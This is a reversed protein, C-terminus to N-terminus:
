HLHHIFNFILQWHCWNELARHQQWHSWPFFLHERLPYVVFLDLPFPLTFFTSDSLSSMLGAGEALGSPVIITVLFCLSECASARSAEVEWSGGIAVGWLFIEVGEIWWNNISLAGGGGLEASGLLTRSSAGNWKLDSCGSCQIVTSGTGRRERGKRERWVSMGSVTGEMEVKKTILQCSSLLVKKNSVLCRMDTSFLQAVEMKTMTSFSQCQCSFNSLQFTPKAICSACLQNTLLFHQVTYWTMASHNTWFIKCWRFVPKLLIHQLQPKDQCGKKM